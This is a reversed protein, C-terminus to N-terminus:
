EASSDLRAVQRGIRTIAERLDLMEQEPSFPFVAGNATEDHAAVTENSSNPSGIQAIIRRMSLNVSELEDARQHEAAIKALLRVRRAVFEDNLREAEAV